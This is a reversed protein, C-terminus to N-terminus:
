NGYYGIFLPCGTETEVIAYIFPRDLTMYVYNHEIVATLEGFIDTVAAAEAGEEDMLFFTKQTADLLMEEKPSFINVDQWDLVLDPNINKMYDFLHKATYEATFKPAYLVVERSEPKGVYVEATARVKFDLAAPIADEMAVGEKPLILVMQFSHDVFPRTCLQYKDTEAYATWYTQRMMDVMETKSNAYHFPMEKTADKEFPDEWGAKFYVANMLHFLDKDSTEQLMEKIRDNTQEACWANITKV